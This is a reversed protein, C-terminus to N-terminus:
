VRVEGRLFWNAIGHRNRAAVTREDVGTAKAVAQVTEGSAIETSLLGVSAVIESYTQRIDLLTIIDWRDAVVLLQDEVRKAASESLEGFFALRLGDGLIQLAIPLDDGQPQTTQLLAGTAQSTFESGTLDEPELLLNLRSNELQLLAPGSQAFGEGQKTIYDYADQLTEPTDLASEQEVELRSTQFELDFEVKELSAASWRLDIGTCFVFVRGYWPHILLGEGSDVARKLALARQLADPGLIFGSLGPMDQGPQLGIARTGHQFRAETTTAFGSRFRGELVNLAIGAFSAPLIAQYYSNVREELSM